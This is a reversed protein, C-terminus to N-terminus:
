ALLGKLEALIEADSFHEARIAGSPCAAACTGCGQCLLAEIRTKKRQPDFSIAKFPCVTGCIRCGSCREEDVVATVPDIELRKGAPLGSLILGAAAVGQLTSRQIDMPAQCTGALYVGRLKSSAVDVRDHMEEFFGYRDRPLDCLEALEASGPAPVLAPALFVLDVEVVADERGRDSVRCGGGAVAEICLDDLQRYRYLSDALASEGCLLPTNKGPLMLERFFHWVKVEPLKHHLLQHYKCSARCCVESCYAQREADRSGVCHIIAIARPPTGGPTLLEGGTPGTSALMRELELTTHVGPLQGYGLAPLSSCDYLVAGTALVIAGVQREMLQTEEAYDVLDDGMPCALRCLECEEGQWRRCASHELTPVNPLAGVFPLDIAKRRNLGEEFPNPLSNPCVAACEGCGICRELDVHRPAQRIKVQFNGFFGVVEQVEALTLLEIKEAHEGHLVAALIPEMLCPGCELAPFLEEFRVPLGGIVPSREVLVVQRGSAALTLAAKLGAPGAGVVLVTAVADIERRELPQQWPVRNLAGRLWTIAKATAQERDPTVWAIQERLNVLQMLYPNLGGETMVRMFTTEHERPSCAGIVVREPAEAALEAVMQEKAAESCLLPVTRVTVAHPSDSLAATVQELDIREALTGSCSCLYVAIRM